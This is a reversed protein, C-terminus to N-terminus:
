VSFFCCPTFSLSKVIPQFEEGREHNALIISNLFPNILNSNCLLFVPNPLCKRYWVFHRTIQKELLIEETFVMALYLALIILFGHILKVFLNLKYPEIQNLVPHLNTLPLVCNECSKIMLRFRLFLINKQVFRREEGIKVIQSNCFSLFDSGAVM